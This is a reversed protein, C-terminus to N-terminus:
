LTKAMREGKRENSRERREEVVESALSRVMAGLRDVVGV